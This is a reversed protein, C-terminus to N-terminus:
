QGDKEMESDLETSETVKGDTHTKKKKKVEVKKKGAPTEVLQESTTTEVVTGTIPNKSVETEQKNEKVTETALALSGAFLGAVAFLLTKKM